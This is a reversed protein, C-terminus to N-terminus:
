EPFLGEPGHVLAELPVAEVDDALPYRKVGPYIVAIRELKLDELAIRIPPTLSPADIRKCEVGLMRGPKLLTVM